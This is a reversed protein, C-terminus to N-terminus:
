YCSCSWMRKQCTMIACMQFTLEYQKMMGFMETKVDHCLFISSFMIVGIKLM